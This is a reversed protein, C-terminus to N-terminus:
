PLLFVFVVLRNVLDVLSKSLQGLAHDLDVGLLGVELHGQALERQDVGALLLDQGELLEPFEAFVPLCVLLEPVIGDEGREVRVVYFLLVFAHASDDLLAEISEVLSFQGADSCDGGSDFLLNIVKFLVQWDDPSKARFAQFFTVDVHDRSLQFHSALSQLACFAQRNEHLHTNVLM